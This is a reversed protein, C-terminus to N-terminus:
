NFQEKDQQSKVEQEEIKHLTLINNDQVNEIEAKRQLVQRRM